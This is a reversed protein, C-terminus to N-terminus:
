VASCDICRPLFSLQFSRLDIWRRILMSWFRRNTVVLYAYKDRYGFRYNTSSPTLVDRRDQPSKVPHCNNFKRQGNQIVICRIAQRWLVQRIVAQLTVVVIPRRRRRDDLKAVQSTWHVRALRPSRGTVPAVGCSKFLTGRWRRSELSARTKSFVVAGLSHQWHNFHLILPPPVSCEPQAGSLPPTGKELM